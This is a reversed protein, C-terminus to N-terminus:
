RENVAPVNGLRYAPDNHLNHLAVFVRILHFLCCEFWTFEIVVIRFFVFVHASVLPFHVFGFM